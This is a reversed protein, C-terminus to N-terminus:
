RGTTEPVESTASNSGAWSYGKSLGQRNTESRGRDEALVQDMVTVISSVSVVPCGALCAGLAVLNAVSSNGLRAALDNAPVGIVRIDRRATKASVLCQNVVLLGGPKVTPELKAFSDETLAIAATPRNVFLTGIREDSIIVTCHVAGGRKEGGYSPLWLVERGELLGAEALLRGIFLVGQGGLGAMVMEEHM